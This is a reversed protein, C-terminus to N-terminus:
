RITPLTQETGRALPTGGRRRLEIELANAASAYGMERLLGAVYRIACRRWAARAQDTAKLRLIVDGASTMTAGDCAGVVQELRTM